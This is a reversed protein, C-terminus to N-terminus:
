QGPQNYFVAQPFQYLTKVNLQELAKQRAEDPQFLVIIAGNELRNEATAIQQAYDQRYQQTYNDYIIPFAYAPRGALFYFLEVNDSIFLHSTDIENLTHVVETWSNKVDTYGLDKNPNRLASATETLSLAVFLIGIVLSIIKITITRKEVLRFVMVILMVVVAAYVPLLYRRTASLSTSADLLTTNAVLLIIYTPIFLLMLYPLITFGRWSSDRRLAGRRNELWLYALPIGISFILVLCADLIRPLHLVRPSFWSVAESIFGLVLERSMLHFIFQRNVLSNSVLSNRYFWLILPTLSVIGLVATHLLRKKWSIRAFILIGLGAMGVTALGVYRTLTAIAMLLGAVVLLWLKSSEFYHVLVYIAVLTLFIFLGETMVWSHYHIMSESAMVLLSAILAPIVRNTYRFVLLGVLSINAGFLLINLIHASQYLNSGLIGTGALILSFVPPFGTIPVPEWGGSYRSYGNGSLLNQAGMVYYVSDGTVGPGKRTQYTVALMGALAIM